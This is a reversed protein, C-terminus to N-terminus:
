IEEVPDPLHHEILFHNKITGYFQGDLLIKDAFMPLNPRCHVFQYNLKPIGDDTLGKFFRCFTYDFKSSLMQGHVEDIRYRYSHGYPVHGFPKYDTLPLIFGKRYVEASSMIEEQQHAFVPIPFDVFKLNSDSPDVRDYQARPIITMVSIFVGFEPSYLTYGNTAEKELSSGVVYREGLPAVAGNPTADAPAGGQSTLREMNVPTVSGGIRAPRNIRYDEIIADYQVKMRDKYEDGGAQNRKLFREYMQAKKFTFLDLMYTNNVEYLRSFPLSLNSLAQPLYTGVSRTVGFQDVWQLQAASWLNGVRFVEDSNPNGQSPMPNGSYFVNDTNNDSIENSIPSSAASFISADPVIPAYVHRSIDDLQAETYPDKNWSGVRLPLLCACAKVVTAPAFLSSSNFERYEWLDPSRQEFDDIRYHEFWIAYLARLKYESREIRSIEYISNSLQTGSFIIIPAQSWDQILPFETGGTNMATIVVDYRGSYTQSANGFRYDSLLKDLWESVDEHKMIIYGLYDMNSGEGCFFDFITNWVLKLVEKAEASTTTTLISLWIPTIQEILDEYADDHYFDKADKYFQSNRIAAAVLAASNMSVYANGYQYSFGSSNGTIRPLFDKFNILIQQVVTALSFSPVALDASMGNLKTPTMLDEFGKDIARYTVFFQHINVNVDSVVPTVIQEALLDFDTKGSFKDGAMIPQHSIPYMRGM